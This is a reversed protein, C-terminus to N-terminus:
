ENHAAAFNTRASLKNGFIELRVLLASVLTLTGDLITVVIRAFLLTAGAQPAHTCTLMSDIPM